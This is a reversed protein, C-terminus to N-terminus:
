RGAKEILVPSLRVALVVALVGAVLKAIIVPIVMEPNVGATYSLHDGFVFGAPICFASVVIKGKKDMDKIMTFAPIANALAAILGASAAEDLGLRDGLKKIPKEFTRSIWTVMPLAGTLLLAIQGVVLLGETLPSLGTVPDTEVMLSLVPLRLETFFMIISLALAGTIIGVVIMGLITFAKMTLSPILILGAVIVATVIFLPILNMFLSRISIPCSTINMMLGGAMCGAPVAIAACLVGASFYLRDREQLITLGLPVLATIIMGFTSGVILGAFNGDAPNSEALEMSLHYGGADSSFFIGAFMAPSAGIRSFASSLFPGLVLQIVPVLCMAGVMALALPGMTHFAEEFKEGYGHKNGRIRDVAGVVTFIMLILIVPTHLGFHHTFDNWSDTLVTMM